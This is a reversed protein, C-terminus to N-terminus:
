PYGNNESIENQIGVYHTIKGQEDKVPYISVSDNYLTGDKRRNRLEGCWSDGNQITQWMESFVTVPTKGSNIFNMSKGLAETATYGTM